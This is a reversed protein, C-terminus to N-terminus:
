RVFYRWQLSRWLWCLSLWVQEPRLYFRMWARMNFAVGSRCYRVGQYLWTSRCYLVGQYLWTSRWQSCRKSNREKKLCRAVICKSVSLFLLWIGSSSRTSRSATTCCCYCCAAHEWAGCCNNGITFCPILVSGEQRGAQGWTALDGHWAFRLAVLVTM